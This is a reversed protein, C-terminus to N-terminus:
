CQGNKAGGKKALRDIIELIKAKEDDPLEHRLMRSLAFDSVGLAEAIQWLRIGLALAKQRIEMNNMNM